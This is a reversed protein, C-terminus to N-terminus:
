KYVKYVKVEAIVTTFGSISFYPNTTGNQGFALGSNLIIKATTGPQMYTIAEHLGPTQLLDEARDASLNNPPYVEFREPDYYHGDVFGSTQYKLNGKLDWFAYHIEVLNGIKITDGTGKVEEFYYLGSPLPLEDPYNEDMYIDLNALENNRLEELNNDDGCASIVVVSAIFILGAFVQKM